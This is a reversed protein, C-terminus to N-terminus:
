FQFTAFIASDVFVWRKDKSRWENQFAYYMGADNFGIGFTVTLDDAKVNLFNPNFGTIWWQDAEPFYSIISNGEYTVIMGMWMALSTDVIRHGSSGRYIGM